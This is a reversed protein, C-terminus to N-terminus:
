FIRVLEERAGHSARNVHPVQACSLVDQLQLAVHSLAGVNVAVGVVSECHGGAGFVGIHLYPVEPEFRVLVYEGEFFM